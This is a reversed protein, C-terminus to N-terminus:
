ELTQRRRLLNLLRSKFRHRNATNDAVTDSLYLNVDAAVASQEPYIVLTNYDNFFRQVMSATQEFLPNYSVTAPRSQVLVVMDNPRLDKAIMLVDEWDLMEQFRASIQLGKRACLAELYVKTESNTYFVVQAALQLSLARIQEFWKIMTAELHAHVPVAVRLRQITSLPQVGRYVDLTPSVSNILGELIPSYDATSSAGVVVYGISYREIAESIGNYINAAPQIQGELPTRYSSAHRKAHELLREARVVEDPHTTVALATLRPRSSTIMLEALDVLGTDTASNSVAILINESKQEDELERQQLQLAVQKSAHETLFSATTCLVLIMIVSANLVDSTFVQMQYGVTVVALTGAATAQTLAFLLTTEASSLRLWRRAILAALGKGSLKVVCMTLALIVVTWGSWFMRIDIMMGVSLLFLPIFLTNGVFNLRNMLPSLNPILRNLAVGALFAGLIGGIGVWEALWSSLLLLFIVLMFELLPDNVNKIFRQALMPFLWLVVVAFCITGVSLRIWYSSGIIGQKYGIVCSLVLLSLTVAVMTAGVTINIVSQRQLNYRSVIPYTMLTHSGLMSGFLVSTLLPMSLLWYGAVFALLAPCLFTLVGLLASQRFRRKFDGIDIEIGSLFMIYLIGMQALVDVAGSMSLWGFGYQGVAM